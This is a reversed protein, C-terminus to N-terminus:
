ATRFLPEAGLLLRLLATLEAASQKDVRFLKATPSSTTQNPSEPSMEQWLRELTAELFTRDTTDDILFVIRDLEVGDVLKGLEFVCGQNSPSFNRLDMLVADSSGALRQMTMQWTDDHCFFEHIRYRGDPDPQGDIASVRRELDAQDKVFQRGLRGPLFDLFEHPEVTTTVLDPGAIMSIGGAHQWHRRLRDFMRESRKGLAFVRLLLLTKPQRPWRGTGGVRLGLVSITKYAIFAAMGTFIWLPGEFALGISQVVAFLLWLSDVTLSQDSFRKRQYGLGLWRPPPSSSRIDWNRLTGFCPSSSPM